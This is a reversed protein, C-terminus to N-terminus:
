RKFIEPPKEADPKHLFVAAQKAWLFLLFGPVFALVASGKVVLRLLSPIYSSSSLLGLLSGSAMLAAALRNRKRNDFILDADVGSDLEHQRQRRRELWSSM